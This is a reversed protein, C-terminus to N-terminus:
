PLCKIYKSKRIIKDRTVLPIDYVWSTAAIIEDAPDSRFDLQTSKEAILVDISFIRISSLFRLVEPHQLNIRIRGLSNLKAMEWVVIDSICLAEKEFVKLELPALRGGLFDILIHTDLNLM